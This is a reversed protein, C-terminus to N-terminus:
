YSKRNAEVKLHARRAPLIWLSRLLYLYLYHPKVDSLMAGIILSLNNRCHGYRVASTWKYLGPPVFPLVHIFSRSTRISSPVATSLHASPRFSSRSATSPRSTRGSLRTPAQVLRSSSWLPRALRASCGPWVLFECLPHVLCISFGPTCGQKRQTTYLCPWWPQECFTYMLALVVRMYPSWAVYLVLLFLKLLAHCQGCNWMLGGSM